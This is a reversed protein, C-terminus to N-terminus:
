LYDLRAAEEAPVDEEATEPAPPSHHATEVERLIEVAAELDEPDVVLVPPGTVPNYDVVLAGFPGILNQVGEDKVFYRVGSADLMAKLVPLLSDHSLTITPLTVLDDEPLHPRNAQRRRAACWLGSM